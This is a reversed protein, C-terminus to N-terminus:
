ASLNLGGAPAEPLEATAAKRPADVAFDLAQLKFPTREGFGDRLEDAGDKLFQSTAEDQAIV